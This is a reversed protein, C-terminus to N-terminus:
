FYVLNIVEGTMGKLTSSNGTLDIVDESNKTNSAMKIEPIDNVVHVTDTALDMGVEILEGNKPDSWNGLKDMVVVDKKTANVIEYVYADYVMLDLLSKSYLNLIDQTMKRIKTSGFDFDNISINTNIARNCILCSAGGSKSFSSLSNFDFCDFHPCVTFRVPIEIRSLTIPDLLRLDTSEVHIDEDGKNVTKIYRAKSDAVSLFHNQKLIEVLDSSGQKLAVVVFIPINILKLNQILQTANVTPADIISNILFPSKADKLVSMASCPMTNWRINVTNAGQKIFKDLYFLNFNLNLDAAANQLIYRNLNGNNIDVSYLGQQPRILINPNAFLITFLDVKIVAITANVQDTVFHGNLSQPIHTNSTNLVKPHFAALVNTVSYTIPLEFRLNCLNLKYTGVLLHHSNDMYSVAINHIPIEKPTPAPRAYAKSARPVVNTKKKAMKLIQLVSCM